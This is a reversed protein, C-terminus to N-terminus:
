LPALGLRHAAEQLRRDRTLLRWGSLRCAALLQVDVWGLGRGFLREGEILDLLEAPQALAARPLRQLAELTMARVPLHGCALEDIVADHVGALGERLLRELEAHGSRFLEIWVSTDALTV